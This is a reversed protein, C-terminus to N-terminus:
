GAHRQHLPAGQNRLGGRVDRAGGQTAGSHRFPVGAHCRGEAAVQCFFILKSPYFPTQAMEHHLFITVDAPAENASVRPTHNIRYANSLSNAYSFNPYGLASVVCLSRRSPWPCVGCWCQAMSVWWNPSNRRRAPRGPAPKTWRSRRLMSGWLFRRATTNTNGRPAFPKM